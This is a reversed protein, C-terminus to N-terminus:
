GAAASGFGGCAVCRQIFELNDKNPSANGSHFETDVVQGTEALHCVMPTNGHSDEYDWMTSRKKTEIVTTVVQRCRCLAAKMLTRNINLLAQVVRRSKGLRRLWKCLTKADPLAEFGLLKMLTAEKGLHRIDELCQGGEHKMLVFTNFLCSRRNGRNSGPVSLARDVTDTLQLQKILEAIFALGARSSLNYKSYDTKYPLINM